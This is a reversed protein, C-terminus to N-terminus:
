GGQVRCVCSAPYNLPPQRKKKSWFVLAETTGPPVSASVRKSVKSAGSVGGAGGGSPPLPPMSGLSGLGFQARGVWRWATAGIM